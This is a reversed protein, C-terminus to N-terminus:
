PVMWRDILTELTEDATLADLAADLARVLSADEKRVAIVYPEGTVPPALIRLEADGHAAMLASVHDTVVASVEGTHLLQTVTVPQDVTVIVPPLTMSKARHLVEMHGATGFVCALPQGALDEVTSVGDDGTVVLVHGADFYTRTFLFAHSRAPDPYLASVIVDARGATLADYLADYGTTVFHAQVGLQAALARALDIDLGELEGAANVSEFPPFSPDMAVRLVGAAQVRELGQPARGCGAVGVLLLGLSIVLM